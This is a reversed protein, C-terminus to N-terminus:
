RSIIIDDKSGPTNISKTQVYGIQKLVSKQKSIYAWASTKKTYEKYFSIRETEHDTLLNTELVLYKYGDTKDKPSIKGVYKAFIRFIITSGYMSYELYRIQNGYIELNIEM